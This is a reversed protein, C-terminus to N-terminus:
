KKSSKNLVEERNSMSKAEEGETETVENVQVPVVEASAYLPGNPEDVTNVSGKLNNEVISGQDTSSNISTKMENSVQTGSHSLFPSNNM